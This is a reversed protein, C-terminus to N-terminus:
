LADFRQKINPMERERSYTSVSAHAASGDREPSVHISVYEAGYDDFMKALKRAYRRVKAEDAKTLSMEFKKDLVYKVEVGGVDISQTEPSKAMAKRIADVERRVREVYRLRAQRDRNM